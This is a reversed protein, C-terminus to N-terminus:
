VRIELEDPIDHLTSLALFTQSSSFFISTSLTHKIENQLKEGM